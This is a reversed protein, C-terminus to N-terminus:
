HGTLKFGGRGNGRLLIVSCSSAQELVEILAQPGAAKEIAVTVVELVSEPLTLCGSSLIIPVDSRLKRIHRATEEGDMRPMLCDLVVVGIDRV